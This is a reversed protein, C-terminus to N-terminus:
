ISLYMKEIERVHDQFLYDFNKNVIQRNFKEILSPDQILSYLKNYLGESTVKFIFREDYTYIIDKAGVNESVLVPVGYSLAELTILSFTEKWLSPVVLFDMKDFVEKLQGAEYKGYYRILKCEKDEGSLNNGWVNLRWNNIGKNNLDILMERLFPLGKFSSSPGIFGIRLPNQVNRLSRNDHINYNSIPIVSSRKPKLFRTYVKKSVKSNFHFFDVLDFVERYYDILNQYEDIPTKVPTDFVKSKDTSFEAKMTSYFSLKKKFKLLYRFNRVRLYATSPSNLNCVACKEGGPTTCHNGTFDIFNVKFCLGYYDHSTFVIKVGKEKLFNVLSRSIGMFTHIHFIDPKVKDYFLKIEKFPVSDSYFLTTKPSKVGDLLPIPVGNQFEYVKIGSSERKEKIKRKVFGFLNTYGTSLLYVEDGNAVQQQMLDYSYKTLGGSRLPPLGLTFHLIKM